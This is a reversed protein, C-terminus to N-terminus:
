VSFDTVLKPLVLVEPAAFYFVPLEMLRVYRVVLRHHRVCDIITQNFSSESDLNRLNDCLIDCQAGVCMMLAAIMTDMNLNAVTLYWIGVVQYLYTIEYFPSIKTNHPYWAAFPLRKEKVSNDLFPFISWMSVTSGAMIWFTVYMFKWSSLAPRVMFIQNSNKPQFIKSNLTTMLEKLLRVNRIFFYVKMSALVDTVTIFITGALAELNKYVFFINIIQFFNHGGMIVITSIIAYLSYTDRKYIEDGKPWLGVLQLMLINTKITHKWSFNEM